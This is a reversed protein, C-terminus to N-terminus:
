QETTRVLQLEGLLKVRLVMISWCLNGYFDQSPFCTFCMAMKSDLALALAALTAYCWPFEMYGLRKCEQLCINCRGINLLHIM